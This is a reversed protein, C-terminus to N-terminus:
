GSSGGERWQENETGAWSMRVGGYPNGATEETTQQMRDQPQIM